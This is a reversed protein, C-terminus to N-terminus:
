KSIFNLINDFNNDLIQNFDNLNFKVDLIKDTSLIYIEPNNTNGFIKIEFIKENEMKIIVKLNTKHNELNLEGTLILGYEKKLSEFYDITVHEQDIIIKSSYPSKDKLFNSSVDIFQKYAKPINLRQVIINIFQLSKENDDNMKFSFYGEPFLTLKLLNSLNYENIEGSTTLTDFILKDIIIRKSSFNLKPNTFNYYKKISLEGDEILINREKNELNFNVLLSLKPVIKLQHPEQLSINVNFNKELNKIYSNIYVRDVLYFILFFICIIILFLLLLLKKIM